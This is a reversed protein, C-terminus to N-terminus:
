KVVTFKNTLNTKNLNMRCYYIGNSFNNVNFTVSHKGANQNENVITKILLGKSNYISINVYGHVPLTYNIKTTKGISNFNSAFSYKDNINNSIGTLGLLGKYPYYNHAKVRLWIDGGPNNAIYDKLASDSIECNGEFGTFYTSLFNDDKDYLAVWTYPETQMKFTTASLTYDPKLSDPTETWFSLAPDGFFNLGYVIFRLAGFYPPVEISPNLVIEANAEKGYAHSAQLHHIKKEPNFIADHFFRRIRQGSGDTGDDDELGSPDFGQTAVAGTSLRIFKELICDKNDDFNGPYCAGTTIIYFNASIGDNQYNGTTVGNNTENFALTTNGHGLHDIWVPKFSSVKDRFQSITWSNDMDYLTTVDWTNTPFGYTTYTNHDCVDLFEDMHDGGWVDVTTNWLWNGCLFLNTVGDVVPAESYQITKNIINGLETADDVPFRTAYVECYMDETGPDGFYDQEVGNSDTKWDGDLTSFYLDAGIDKEEYYKDDAIEHDYFYARMGRHPIDNSNGPNDDGGLMVYVINHADYEQKIYKRLKDADDRGETIISKVEDITVIKSRLCRRKNFAVLDNWSDKLGDITVILYEYDDTQQKTLALDSVAEANDVLSQLQSKIFPTCKYVASSRTPATYVKLSIKKYYRIKGTIPNYQVPKILTVFIPHGNKYQMRFWNSRVAGPYFENKEYVPSRLTHLDPHPGKELNVSPTFPKLHYEGNLLTLGSYQVDFSVAEQGKPLLLTVPRVAVMPEFGQRSTRCGKLFVAEDRVQPVDFIYDKEIFEASFLVGPLLLFPLIEKLM